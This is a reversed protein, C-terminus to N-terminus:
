DFANSFCVGEVNSLVSYNKMYAISLLALIDLDM